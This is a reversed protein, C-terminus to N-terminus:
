HITTEDAKDENYNTFRNAIAINLTRQYESDEMIADEIKEKYESLLHDLEDEQLYTEKGDGNGIEHAGYIHFVLGKAISMNTIDAEVHVCIKYSDGLKILIQLSMSSACKM